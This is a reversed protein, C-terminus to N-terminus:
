KRRPTPLTWWVWFAGVACGGGEALSCGIIGVPIWGGDGGGAPGGNGGGGGCSASDCSKPPHLEQCKKFLEAIQEITLILGFSGPSGGLLGPTKTMLNQVDGVHGLGFFHGLEHAGISGIFRNIFDTSFAGKSLTNQVKDVYAVNRNLANYGSFDWLPTTWSIPSWWASNTLTLTADAAKADSVFDV